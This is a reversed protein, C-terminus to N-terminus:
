LKGRNRNNIGMNYNVKYISALDEKATYKVLAKNLDEHAEEYMGLKMHALGKNFFNHGSTNDEKLAKEFHQL